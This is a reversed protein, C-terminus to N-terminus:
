AIRSRQSQGPRPVMLRRDALRSRGIETSAPRRKRGTEDPDFADVLDTAM